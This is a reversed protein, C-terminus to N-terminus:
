KSCCSASKFSFPSLRILGNKGVETIGLLAAVCTINSSFILPVHLVTVVAQAEDVQDIPSAQL